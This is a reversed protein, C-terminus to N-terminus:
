KPLREKKLEDSSRSMVLDVSYFTNEEGDWSISYSHHPGDYHSMM